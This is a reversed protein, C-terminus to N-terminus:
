IRARTASKTGMVSAKIRLRAEALRGEPSHVFIIIIHKGVANHEAPDHAGIGRRHIRRPQV